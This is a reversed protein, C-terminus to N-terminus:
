TKGDGDLPSNSLREVADITDQFDGILQDYHGHQAEAAEDRKKRAEAIKDRLGDLVIHTEQNFDGMQETIDAVKASLSGRRTDRISRTLHADLKRSSEIAQGPGILPKGDGSKPLENAPLTASTSEGDDAM